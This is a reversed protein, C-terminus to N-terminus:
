KKRKALLFIIAFGLAIKLVLYLIDFYQYTTITEKTWQECYAPGSFSCTSTALEIKQNYAM